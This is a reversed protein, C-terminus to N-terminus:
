PWDLYCQQDSKGDTTEVNSQVFGGREM